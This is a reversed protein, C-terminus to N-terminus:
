PQGLDFAVHNNVELHELPANLGDSLANNKSTIYNNSPILKADIRLTKYHLALGRFGVLTPYCPPVVTMGNSFISKNITLKSDIQVPFSPKPQNPPPVTKRKKAYTKFTGGMFPAPMAVTDSQGMINAVSDKKAKHMEVKYADFLTQDQLGFEDMQIPNVKDVKLTDNYKLTDGLERMITGSAAYDPVRIRVVKVNKSPRFFKTLSRELTSRQNRSVRDLGPRGKSKVVKGNVVTKKARGKRDKITSLLGIENKVKDMTKTDIVIDCPKPRPNAGTLTIECPETPLESKLEVMFKHLDQMPIQIGDPTTHFGRRDTKRFGSKSEEERAKSQNQLFKELKRNMSEFLKDQRKKQLSKQLKLNHLNFTSPDKLYHKYIAHFRNRCQTRTKNGIKQAITVWARTGLQRVHELLMKDEEPKWDDFSAKLFTNYRSHLQVANRHPIFDAIKAWQEGFLTVGILIMFDEEPTFFGKRLTSRLSYTYRQYCQEKTRNKMHYAVKSWPIFRNIRTTTVLHILWKDEAESWKRKSYVRNHKQQYRLFCIFGTRGTNLEDAVRDWNMEQSAVALAKLHADEEPKWAKKNITPHLLNKWMLECNKPSM